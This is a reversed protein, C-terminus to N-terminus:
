WTGQAGLRATWDTFATRTPSPALGDEAYRVAQMLALNGGVPVYPPAFAAFGEVAPDDAEGRAAERLLQQEHDDLTIDPGLATFDGAAVATRREVDDMAMLARAVDDAPM